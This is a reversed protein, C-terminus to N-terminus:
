RKATVEARLEAVESRLAKVRLLLFVILALPAAVFLGLMGAVIILEFVGISM